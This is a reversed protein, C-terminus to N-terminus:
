QESNVKVGHFCDDEGTAFAGAEEGLYGSVM